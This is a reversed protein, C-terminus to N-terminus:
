GNQEHDDCCTVEDLEKRIGVLGKIRENRMRDIRGVGIMTRLNDM